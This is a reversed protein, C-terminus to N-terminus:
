HESAFSSAQLVELGMNVVKRAALKELYERSLEEQPRSSLQWHRVHLPPDQGSVGIRSSRSVTLIQDNEPLWADVVPGQHRFIGVLQGDESDWVRATRDAGGTIIWRGDPSFSVSLIKADHQLRYNPANKGSGDTIAWVSAEGESSVTALLKERSTGDPRFALNEVDSSHELNGTPKAVIGQDLSQRAKDVLDKVRWLKVRNHVDGTALLQGDQSFALCLVGEEHPFSDKWDLAGVKLRWLKLTAVGKERNRLGLFIIGRSLNDSDLVEKGAIVLIEEGGFRTFAMNAFTLTSDAEAKPPLALKQPEGDGSPSGSKLSEFNWLFIRPSAESRSREGVVLWDGSPSFAALPTGEMRAPAELQLPQGFKAWARVKMSPERKEGSSAATFVWNGDPSIATSQIGQGKIVASDPFASPSVRASENAIYVVRGNDESRAVQQVAVPSAIRAYDESRWVRLTHGTNTVLIGSNGFKVHDITGEHYSHPTLEAAAHVDWIRVTRDRGATIIVDDTVFAIDFVSSGLIRQSEFKPTLMATTTEDDQREPKTLSWILVQGDDCATAFEDGSPSFYAARIWSKTRRWSRQQSRDPDALTWGWDYLRQRDGGALRVVWSPPFARQWSEDDKFWAMLETTKEGEKGIGALVHGKSSLGALRVSQDSVGELDPLPTLQLVGTNPASAIKWLRLRRLRPNQEQQVTLVLSEGGVDLSVIPADSALQPSQVETPTWVGGDRKWAYLRDGGVLLYERKSEGSGLETFAIGGINSGADDLSLSAKLSSKGFSNALSYINVTTEEAESQNAMKRHIAALYRQDASLAIDGFVDNKEDEVTALVDLVPLQLRALQRIKESESSPGAMWGSLDDRADLWLLAASLDGKSLSDVAYGYMRQQREARQRARHVGMVTALVALAILAIAIYRAQQKRTERSRSAHLFDQENKMLSSDQDFEESAEVLMVGQWLLEKPEDREKWLNAAQRLRLRFRERVRLEDLWSILPPWSVLLASYALNFRSPAEQSTMRVLEQQRLRELVEDVQTQNGAIRYLDEVSVECTTFSGDPELTVMAMLIQQLTIKQGKTLDGYVDDMAKSLATRGAGAREYAQWTIRNRERHSWLRALTFQLLPLVTPESQIDILIQDILGTEFILGVRRAPEEILHRLEATTFSMLVHGDRLQKELPGFKSLAITHHRRLTTIAYYRQQPNRLLHALNELIAVREKQPAKLLSGFRNFILAAPREEGTELIRSLTTNDNRFESERQAVWQADHGDQRALARLLDAMPEEGLPVYYYRWEDSGSLEKLRARGSHLTPLVLNHVLVHAGAGVEGMVTLLHDGALDRECEDLLRRWGLMQQAHNGIEKDFRYPFKENELSPALSPDFPLLEDEIEARANRYVFISWYDLISQCHQRVRPDELMAGIQRARAVFERAAEVLEADNSDRGQQDLLAHHELELEGPSRLAKQEGSALLEPKEPPSDGGRGNDLLIDSERTM